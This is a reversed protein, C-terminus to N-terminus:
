SRSSASSSVRRRLAFVFMIAIGFLPSASGSTSCGSGGGGMTPPDTPTTPGSRPHVLISMTQKAGFWTVGEQVLQFTEEFQTSEEVEPAVMAWTFRGVAGATAAGDAATPRSPSLWNEDKFFVSARDQPDQTGVRTKADWALNGDNKYELFVVAEEGSTMEMPADATAFTADYRPACHAPAGQGTARIALHNAVVRQQGDSPNNVVGKSALWMTSSGGGDLNVADHAGLEVFLSRMETCIMGLRNTARGDIVALFLKTHAKDFGLATRPHRATCLPDGDNDRLMGGVILSPHGSVVERAWPGVGATSGHAPLAVRGPGFQVPAVYTGDAGGWAAGGSMSPGNTSYNEFSFFDGNIAAQADVLAGFSSVIRQRENTKTARVSVGPACLDVVLVNVNQTATTRLLRRVGPYPDSWTDAATATGTTAVFLVFALLSRM